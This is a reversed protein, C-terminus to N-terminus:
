RTRPAPTTRPAIAGLTVSGLMAVLDTVFLSQALNGHGAALLAFGAVGAALGAVFIAAVLAGLVPRPARVPRQLASTLVTTSM